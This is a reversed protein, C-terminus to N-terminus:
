GRVRVSFHGCATAQDTRWNKRSILVLEATSFCWRGWRHLSAKFDCKPASQFRQASGVNQLIGCEDSSQQPM